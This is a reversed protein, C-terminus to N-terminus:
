RLPLVARRCAASLRGTANRAGQSNRSRRLPRQASLSGPSAAICPMPLVIVSQAAPPTAARVRAAAGAADPSSRGARARVAFVCTRRVTSLSCGPAMGRALPTSFSSPRSAARLPRTCTTTSVLSGAATRARTSPMPPRTSRVEYPSTCADTGARADLRRERRGSISRTLAGKMRTSCATFPSSTAAVRAFAHCSSPKVPFPTLTAIMSPPKAPRASRWASPSSGALTELWSKQPPRNAVM